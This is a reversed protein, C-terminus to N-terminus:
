LDGIDIFPKEVTKIKYNEIENYIQEKYPNKKAKRINRSYIIKTNKTSNKTAHETLDQAIEKLTKNNKTFRKLKNIRRGNIKGLKYARYYVMDKVIPNVIAHYHERETTKGYDCNLIYENAQENLFKKIYRLRTKENTNKLTEDSFTFTLFLCNNNTILQYIRKNLRQRKIAQARDINKYKYDEKKYMKFHKSQNTKGSTLM